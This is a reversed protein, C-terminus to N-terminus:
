FILRIRSGATEDEEDEEVGVGVIELLYPSDLPARAAVMATGMIAMASSIRPYPNKM